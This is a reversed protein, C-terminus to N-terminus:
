LEEDGIESPIWSHDHWIAQPLTISWLRGFRIRNTIVGHATRPRRHTDSEHATAVVVTFQQSKSSRKLLRGSEMVHMGRSESTGAVRVVCPSFNSYADVSASPEQFHPIDRKALRYV